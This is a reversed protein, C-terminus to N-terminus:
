ITPLIVDLADGNRVRYSFFDSDLTLIRRLRRTDALAVLTADALDMPHDQYQRMLEYALQVEDHILDCFVLHGKHWTQWIAQQKDFGGSLGLFYMAETICPWTTAFVQDPLSLLTASCAAYASDSPDNLAILPGADILIM